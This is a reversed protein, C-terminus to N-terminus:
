WAEDPVTLLKGASRSPSRWATWEVYWGLISAWGWRKIHRQKVAIAPDVEPWGRHELVIRTGDSLQDFRIEIESNPIDRYALMLRKGPEWSLVSGFETHEGDDALERWKGEVRPEMEMGIAHDSRYWNIPGPRWWQGIEETFIKFATAADVDVEVTIVIPEPNM